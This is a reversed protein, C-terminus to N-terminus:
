PLAARVRQWYGLTARKDAGKPGGNHTRAIVEADNSAWADPVWQEMYAAIVREAYDRQRCSEYAGGLQPRFAIADQWYVRHIQYPGIARGGDGDPVDDRWGSEVFRIADLVERQSWSGAAAPEARALLWVTVLLAAGAGIAIQRNRKLKMTQDGGARHRLGRAGHRGLRQQGYHRRRGCRRPADRHGTDRLHDARTAVRAHNAAALLLNRVDDDHRVARPVAARPGGSTSWVATTPDELLLAAGALALAGLLMGNRNLLVSSTGSGYKKVLTTGIAAVLPSVVLLLSYGLNGSDFDGLSGGFVTLIGSFAVLTGVIQRASLREGLFLAGSAAMLLPFVGWLVAAPGSPVVLEAVYLIGYTGAFNTLGSAIWLWPKPSPVGERRRLVPALAAMAIAAVFFRVAASTLPPQEELCIRIGYWTSGWVLCLLGIALSTTVRLPQPPPPM